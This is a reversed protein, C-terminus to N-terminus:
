HVDYILEQKDKSRLIIKDSAARLKDLNSIVYLMRLNKM